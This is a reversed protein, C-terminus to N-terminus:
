RGNKKQKQNGAAKRAEINKAYTKMLYFFESVETRRLSDYQTKDEGAM